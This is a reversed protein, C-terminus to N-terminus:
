AVGSVSGLLINSKGRNGAAYVNSGYFDYWDLSRSYKEKPKNTLKAKIERERASLCDSKLRGAYREASKKSSFLAHMNYTNPLVNLDQVSVAGTLTGFHHTEVCRFFYDDVSKNLYPRGSVSLKVVSLHPEGEASYLARVQWFTKGQRIDKLKVRM